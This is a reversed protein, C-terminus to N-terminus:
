EEAVQISSLHLSSTIMWDHSQYIDLVSCLLYAVESNRSVEEAFRTKTSMKQYSFLIENVQLNFENEYSYNHM